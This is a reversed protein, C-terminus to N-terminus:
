QLDNILAKALAVFENRQALTIIGQAYDQEVKQMFAAAVLNSAESLFAVYCGDPKYDLFQVARWEAANQRSGAFAAFFFRRPRCAM